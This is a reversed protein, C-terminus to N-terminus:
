ILLKIHLYMDVVKTNHGVNFLIVFCLLAFCISHSIKKEKKKLQTRCVEFSAESRMFCDSTFTQFPSLKFPACM